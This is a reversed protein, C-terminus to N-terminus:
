RRRKVSIERMEARLFVHGKILSTLAVGSCEGGVGGGGEGGRFMQSGMPEKM